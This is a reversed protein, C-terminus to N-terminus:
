KRIQLRDLGNHQTPEAKLTAMAKLDRCPCVCRVDCEFQPV